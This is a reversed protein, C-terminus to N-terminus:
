NVETMPAPESAKVQTVPLAVGMEALVDEVCSTVFRMDAPRM